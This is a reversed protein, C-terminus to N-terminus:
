RVYFYKQWTKMTNFFCKFPLTIYMKSLDGPSIQHTQSCMIVILLVTTQKM